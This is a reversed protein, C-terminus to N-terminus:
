AKCEKHSLTNVTADSWDLAMLCQAAMINSEAPMRHLSLTVYNCTCPTCRARHVTYLSSMTQSCVRCRLHAHM